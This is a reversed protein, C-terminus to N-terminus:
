FILNKYFEPQLNRGYCKRGRAFIGVSNPKLYKDAEVLKEESPPPIRVAKNKWYPVDGFLSRTLNESGCKCKEVYDTGGWFLKCDNCTNAVAIKGVTSATAVKGHEKLGEELQKINKSVNHFARAYERLPMFEEKIEWFEDVLHKYFYERGYWGIVIKYYGPYDQAIKPVCYMSTLTECGFEGFSCIFLVQKSDPKPRNNFKFVNFSIDKIQEEAKIEKRDGPNIPVPKYIKM